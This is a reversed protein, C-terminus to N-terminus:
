YALSETEDSESAPSKLYLPNLRSVFHWIDCESSVGNSQSGPKGVREKRILESESNM